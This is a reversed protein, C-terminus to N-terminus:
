EHVNGEPTLRAVRRKLSQIEEQQTRILERDEQQKRELEKCRANLRFNADVLEEIEKDQREITEIDMKRARSYAETEAQARTSAVSADSNYKAAARAARGALAASIVSILAVFIAAWDSGEM